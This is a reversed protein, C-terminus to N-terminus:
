TVQFDWYEVRPEGEVLDLLQALRGSSQELKLYNDQANDSDWGKFLIAQNPNGSIVYLQAYRCGPANRIGPLAQTLRAVLAQAQNAKATFRITVTIPGQILSKSASTPKPTAALALLSRSALNGGGGLLQPLVIFGLSVSVGQRLLLRRPFHKSDFTSM